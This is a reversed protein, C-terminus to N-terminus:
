ETEKLDNEFRDLIERAEAARPSASAAAEELLRRGSDQRGCYLEAVGLWWASSDERPEFGLDRARRLDEAASLPFGLQLRLVGLYFRPMPWDPAASVSRLLQRQAADDRGHAYDAMASLLLRRSEEDPCSPDAAARERSFAARPLEFEAGLWRVDEAVLRLHRVKLYASGVVIIGFAAALIATGRVSLLKSVIRNM